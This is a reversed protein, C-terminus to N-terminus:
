PARCGCSFKTNEIKPPRRSRLLASDNFFCQDWPRRSYWSFGPIRRPEVVVPFSPIKLDCFLMAFVNDFCLLIWLFVDPCPPLIWQPKSLPVRRGKYGGATRGSNLQCNNTSYFDRDRPRISFSQIWHNSRM